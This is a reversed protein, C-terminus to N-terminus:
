SQDHRKNDKDTVDNDVIDNHNMACTTTCSHAPQSQLKQCQDAAVICAATDNMRNFIYQFDNVLANNIENYIYQACKRKINHNRAIKNTLKTDSSFAAQLKQIKVNDSMKLESYQHYETLEALFRTMSDLYNDGPVFTDLGLLIQNARNREM